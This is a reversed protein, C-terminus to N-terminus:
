FSGKNGCFVFTDGCKMFIDRQAYLIDIGFEHCNHSNGYSAAPSKRLVEGMEDVLSWM